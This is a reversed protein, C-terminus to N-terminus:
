SHIFKIIIKYQINDIESIILANYPTLHYIRNNNPHQKESVFSWTWLDSWVTHGGEASWFLNIDEIFTLLHFEVLKTISPSHGTCSCWLYITMFWGQAVYTHRYDSMCPHICVYKCTFIYTYQVCVHIFIQTYIHICAHIGTLAHVYIGSDIYMCVYMSYAYVYTKICASMCFHICAHKGWITYTYIYVSRYSFKYAHIYSSLCKDTHTTYSHIYIFMRSNIFTHKCGFYSVAILMRVLLVLICVNWMLAM